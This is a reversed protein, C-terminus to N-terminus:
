CAPLYAQNSGELRGEERHLSGRYRHDAPATRDCGHVDNYRHVAGGCSPSALARLCCGIAARCCFRVVAHNGRHCRLQRRRAVKTHSTEINAGSSAPQAVSGPAFYGSNSGIVPEVIIAQLMRGRHFRACPSGHAVASRADSRMPSDPVRIVALGRPAASAAVEASSSVM